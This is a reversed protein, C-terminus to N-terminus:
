AAGKDRLKQFVEKVFIGIFFRIIPGDISEAIAGFPKSEDFKIKDDVFDALRKVVLKHKQEGPLQERAFDLVLEEAKDRIEDVNINKILGM